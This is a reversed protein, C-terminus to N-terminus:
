IHMNVTHTKERWTHVSHLPHVATLPIILGPGCSPEKLISVVPFVEKSIVQFVLTENCRRLLRKDSCLFPIIVWSLKLGQLLVQGLLANVPQPLVR